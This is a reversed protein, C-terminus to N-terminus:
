FWGQHSLEALWGGAYEVAIYSKSVSATHSPPRPPLPLTLAAPPALGAVSLGIVPTTQKHIIILRSLAVLWKAISDALWGALRGGLSCQRRRATPPPPSATTWLTM